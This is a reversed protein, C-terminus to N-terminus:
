RDNPENNKRPPSYVTEDGPGPGTEPHSSPTRPEGGARVGGGRPPIVITEGGGSAPGPPAPRPRGQAATGRYHMQDATPFRPSPPQQFSVGPVNSPVNMNPLTPRPIYSEPWVFRPAGFWLAVLVAALSMFILIRPWLSVSGTPGKLIAKAEADTCTAEGVARGVGPASWLPESRSDVFGDPTRLRVHFRVSQGSLETSAPRVPGFVIHIRETLKRRTIEFIQALRSADTAADYFNDASPWAMQRLADQARRDGEVGFGVTTLPIRAKAAAERVQALGEDGLLGRDDSPHHVDNEGDTFVVLSVDAGSEAHRKLIPIAELVASYLATNNDLRPTPIAAIQDAIDGETSRFEASRIRAVVNHSDFPVVALHDTGDTLNRLSQQVARKAIEFRTMTTPPVRKLMSGSTDFLIMTYRDRARGSASDSTDVYIVPHSQQDETVVFLKTPDGSGIDIGVPQRDADVATLTARFFPRADCQLLQPTSLMELHDVQALEASLPLPLAALLAFIAARSRRM